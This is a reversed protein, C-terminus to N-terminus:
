WNDGHVVFDPQLQLLNERYSLTEQEIVQHVGAVQRFMEKREECNLLPFRKYSAVAEDSLIGVTVQGLRAARAILRLHASHLIDTSFCMYVKKRRVQELRESVVELDQPTDIESCLWTGMDVPRLIVRDTVTNLANEAYCRTEGQQVFDCIAQMWAAMDERRLLYMPQAAAADEFFEIGVKEIRGGHIVAKFDKEPLPLAASVAMGSADQALLKELARWEFVLDGHLLLIDDDALAERALYMSYIYNTKDAIPNIVFTCRLDLGTDEVARRIAKDWTGTTMVVERIGAERILTLQRSLITEGGGIETMCKPHTRTLDGMRSGTGSNLILAKM